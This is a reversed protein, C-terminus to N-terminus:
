LHMDIYLLHMLIIHFFLLCSYCRERIFILGSPSTYRYFNTANLTRCLLAISVPNKGEISRYPIYERFSFFSFFRQSNTEPKEAHPCANFAHKVNRRAVLRRNGFTSSGLRGQYIAGFLLAATHASKMKLSYLIYGILCELVEISDACDYEIILSQLEIEM